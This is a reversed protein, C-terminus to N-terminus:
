SAATVFRASSVTAAHIERLIQELGVTVRWGPYHREFKRTDSIYWIHDGVRNADDYVVHM